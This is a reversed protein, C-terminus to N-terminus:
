MAMSKEADNVSNARQKRMFCRWESRWKETKPHNEPRIFCCSPFRKRDSSPAEVNRTQIGASEFNRVRENRLKTVYCNLLESKRENIETQCTVSVVSDRAKIIGDTLIRQQQQQRRCIVDDAVYASTSGCNASIRKKESSEKGHECYTQFLIDCVMDRVDCYTPSTVGMAVVRQSSITVNHWRNDTMRVDKFENRLNVPKTINCNRGITTMTETSRSVNRGRGNQLASQGSLTRRATRSPGGNSWDRTCFFTVSSSLSSSSSSSSPLHRREHETQGCDRVKWKTVNAPPTALQTTVFVRQTAIHFLASRQKNWNLKGISNIAEKIYLWLASKILCLRLHGAVSASLQDSHERRIVYEIVSREVAHTVDNPDRWRSVTDRVYSTILPTIPFPRHSSQIFVVTIVEFSLKWSM